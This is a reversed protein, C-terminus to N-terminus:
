SQFFETFGIVGNMPTRIEHSMAALFQSKAVNAGEAALKAERLQKTQLDIETQLTQSYREQQEQIIKHSDQTEILMDQYKNELVQFKREYQKKQINLRNNLKKNEEKLFYCSLLKEMYNLKHVAIQEDNDVVYFIHCNFDQIFRGAANGETSTVFPTDQQANSLKGQLESIISLDTPVADPALILKGTSDVCSFNGATVSGQLHTLLKDIENGFSPDKSFLSLTDM